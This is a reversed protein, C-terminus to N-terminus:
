WLKASVPTLWGNDIWASVANFDEALDDISAEYGWYEPIHRQNGEYDTETYETNIYEEAADFSAKDKFSYLTMLTGGMPTDHTYETFALNGDDNILEATSDYNPYCTSILGQEADTFFGLAERGGNWRQYNGIMWLYNHYCQEAVAPAISDELDEYDPDWADDKYSLRSRADDLDIAEAGFYDCYLDVVKDDSANLIEVASESDGDEIYMNLLENRADDIHPQYDKIIYDDSDLLSYEGAVESETAEYLWFDSTGDSSWVVKDKDRM